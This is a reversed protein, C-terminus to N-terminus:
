IEQFNMGKNASKANADKKFQGNNSMKITSSDMSNLAHANHVHMNESSM